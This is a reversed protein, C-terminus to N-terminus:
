SIDFDFSLINRTLQNNPHSLYNKENSKENKLIIKALQNLIDFELTSEYKNKLLNLKINDDFNFRDFNLNFPLKLIGMAENFKIYIEKVELVSIEKEGKISSIENSVKQLTDKEECVIFNLNLLEQIIHEPMTFKNNVGQLRAVLDLNHRFIKFVLPVTLIFEEATKIKTVINNLFSIDDIKLFDIDQKKLKGNKFMKYFIFNEESLKKKASTQIYLYHIDHSLIILKANTEELKKNILEIVNDKFNFYTQIDLTVVPDDFIIIKNNMDGKYLKTLFIGLALKHKEGDSIQSIKKNNIKLEIRKKGNQNLPKLVIKETLGLSNIHENIQLIDNEILLNYKVDISDKLDRIKEVNIKNEIKYNIYTELQSITHYKILEKDLTILSNDELEFKIKTIKKEDYVKEIKEINNLIVKLEISLQNLSELEKTLGLKLNKYNEQNTVLEINNIVYRIDNKIKELAIISKDKYYKKIQIYKEGLKGNCFLCEHKNEHIEIGTKKWEEVNNKELKYNSIKKIEGILNNYIEIRNNFDHIENIFKRIKKNNLEKIFNQIINNNKLKEIEQEFQKDTKISCSNKQNIIYQEFFKSSIVQYQKKVIINKDIYNIIDKDIHQSLINVYKNDFEVKSTQKKEGEIKELKKRLVITDEDIVLLNTLQETTSATIQEGDETTIYIHKNIFDNNFAIVEYDEKYLTSSLNTKGVGNKGYIFYVKKDAELKLEDDYQNIYKM